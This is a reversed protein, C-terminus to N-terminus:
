ENEFVCSEMILLSEKDITEMKNKYVMFELNDIKKLFYEWNGAMTKEKNYCIYYYNDSYYLFFPVKIGKKSIIGVTM